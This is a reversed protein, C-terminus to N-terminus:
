IGRLMGQAITKVDFIMNYKNKVREIDQAPMKVSRCYEIFKEEGKSELIGLSAYLFEIPFRPDDYEDYVINKIQKPFKGYIAKMARPLNRPINDNNKLENFIGDMANDPIYKLEDYWIDIQESEPLKSYRFYQYLKLVTTALSTRVM